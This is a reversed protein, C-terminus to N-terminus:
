GAPETARILGCEVCSWVVLFREDDLIEFTLAGGCTPCVRPDRVHANM